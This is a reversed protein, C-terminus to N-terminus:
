RRLQSFCRRAALCWALLGNGDQATRRAASAMRVDDSMRPPVVPRMWSAICNSPVSGQASFGRFGKAAIQERMAKEGADPDGVGTVSGDILVLSAVAGPRQRAAELVVRCGM